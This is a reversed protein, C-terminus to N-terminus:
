QPESKAHGNGNAVEEEAKRKVGAVTVAAGSVGTSGFGGVGRVSFPSSPFSLFSYAVSSHTPNM